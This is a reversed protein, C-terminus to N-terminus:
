TFVPLFFTMIKPSFLILPSHLANFEGHDDEIVCQKFSAARLGQLYPRSSSSSSSSTSSRSSRSGLARRDPISFSSLGLSLPQDGGDRRSTANLLLDNSPYEAGEISAGPPEHAHQLGFDPTFHPSSLRRATTRNTLRHFDKASYHATSNYRNQTTSTIRTPM